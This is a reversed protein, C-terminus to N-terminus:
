KRLQSVFKKVLTMDKIGAEKEFLSNIDVGFFFPHSFSKIAEVDHLGIGGSLFFPKNIQAVQLVKWNFKEGSGGYIVSSMKDFLFYDCVEQYEKVLWDVDNQNNGIRFAKILEVHDSIQKCFESTEDGHLQVVDLGFADVQELINTVSENVFVGVKKFSSPLGKVEEAKLKHLITRPSSHYFILGAFDIELESLEKMQKLNTIGCVKIKM